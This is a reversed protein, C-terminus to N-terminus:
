RRDAELGPQLFLVSRQDSPDLATTDQLPVQMPVWCPDKPTCEKKGPFHISLPWCRYSKKAENTKGEEKKQQWSLRLTVPRINAVIV